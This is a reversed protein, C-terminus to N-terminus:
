IKDCVCGTTFGNNCRLNTARFKKGMDGEKIGYKSDDINVSSPWGSFCCSKACILTNQRSSETSYGSTNIFNEYYEKNFNYNNILFMIIIFIFFMKLIYINFTNNISNVM